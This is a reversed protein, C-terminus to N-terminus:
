LRCGLLGRERFGNNVKANHVIPPDTIEYEVALQSAYSFAIRAAREAEDPDVDPGLRKLEEALAVVDRQDVSPKGPKTACGSVMVAILMALVPVILKKM